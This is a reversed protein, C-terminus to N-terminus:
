RALEKTTSKECIRAPKAYRTRGKSKEDSRRSPGDPAGAAVMTKVLDAGIETCRKAWGRAGTNQSGLCIALTEFEDAAALAKEIGDNAIAPSLYM